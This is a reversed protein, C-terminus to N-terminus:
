DSDSDSGTLDIVGGERKQKNNDKRTAAEAAIKRKYVEKAPEDSGSRPVRFVNKKKKTVQAVTAKNRPSSDDKSVVANINNKRREEIGKEVSEFLLSEMKDYCDKVKTKVVGLEKQRSAVEEQLHNEREKLRKVEEQLESSSKALSSERDNLPPSTNNHNDNELNSPSSEASTLFDYPSPVNCDASTPTPEPSIDFMSDFSKTRASPAADVEKDKGPAPADASTNNVSARADANNSLPSLGEKATEHKMADFDVADSKTDMISTSTIALADGLPSPPNSHVPSETPAATLLANATVILPTLGKNADEHDVRDLDVANSMTTVTLTDAVPSPPRRHYSSATPPHM